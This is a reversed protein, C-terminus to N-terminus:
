FGGQIPLISPIPKQFWPLGAPYLVQLASVIIELVAVGLLIWQFLRNKENIRKQDTDLKLMLATQDDAMQKQFKQRDLELQNMRLDQLHEKPDLGPSYEWWLSCSREQQLLEFLKNPDQQSEVKFGKFTDEFEAVRRFCVPYSPALGGASHAPHQFAKGTERALTDMEFYNPTPIQNGPCYKALFGCDACKAM